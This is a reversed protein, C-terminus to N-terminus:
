YTGGNSGGGNGGGGTPPASGETGNGNGNDNGNGDGNGNGNGNGNSSTITSFGVAGIPGIGLFSADAVHQSVYETDQLNDEGKIYNFWKGEKEIFEPVVGRQKNTVIPEVYWGLKDELNYHDANDYQVSNDVIQIYKDIKSQSGEYGLTKFSKIVSPEANLVATISSDFQEGYFNNYLEGTNHQYLAGEKFTYYNRSLSLGNEPIFSKFSTWGRVDESYSLTYNETFSDVFSRQLTINDIRYNSVVSSSTPIIVLNNEVSHYGYTNALDGIEVIEDVTDTQGIAHNAALRIIQFGKSTLPNVYFIELAGDGSVRTINFRLRYKEGEQLFLLDNTLPDKPEQAAFVYPHQGNWNSTQQNTSNILISGNDWLINDEAITNDFGSFYWDEATNVTSFYTTRDKVSLSKISCVMAYGQIYFIYNGYYNNWRTATGTDGISVFLAANSSTTSIEEFGNGTDLELSWPDGNPLTTNGDFNAIVKYIGPTDINEVLFGKREETTNDYSRYLFKLTDMTNTYYENGVEFIIEYGEFTPQPAENPNTAAGSGVAYNNQANAHRGMFWRGYGSSQTWLTNENSYQLQPGTNINVENNKVYQVPMSMAHYIPNYTPDSFNGMWGQSHLFGGMSPLNIPTSAPYGNGNNWVDYSGLNKVVIKEITGTYENTRLNLQSTSFTTISQSTSRNNIIDSNSAVKFIARLPTNSTTGSANYNFNSNSYTTRDVRELVVGISYDGTYYSSHHAIEGFFGSPYGNQGPKLGDSPEQQVDSLTDAKFMGEVYLRDASDDDYVDVLYYHDSLLADGLAGEDNLNLIMYEEASSQATIEIKDNVEFINGTNTSSSTTGDQNYTITNYVESSSYANTGYINTGTALELWSVSGGNYGLAPNQYLAKTTTTLTIPEGYAAVANIFNNRNSTDLYINNTLYSVVTLGPINSNPVPPVPPVPPYIANNVPLQDGYIEKQVSFQFLHVTNRTHSGGDYDYFRFKIKVDLNEVALMTNLKQQNLTSNNSIALDFWDKIKFKVRMKVVGYNNYDGYVKFISPKFNKSNTLMYDTYSDGNTLGLALLVLAQILFIIM